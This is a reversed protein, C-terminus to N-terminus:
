RRLRPHPRSRAVPPRCTRSRTQALSWARPSSSYHPINSKASDRRMAPHSHRGYLHVRAPAPRPIPRLALMSTSSRPGQNSLEGTRLVCSSRQAPPSFRRGRNVVDAVRTSMSGVRLHDGAAALPLAGSTEQMSVHHRPFRPTRGPGTRVRDRQRGQIPAPGGLTSGAARVAVRQFHAKKSTEGV